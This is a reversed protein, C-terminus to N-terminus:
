EIKLNYSKIQEELKKANMAQESYKGYREEISEIRQKISMETGDSGIIMDVYNLLELEKSSYETQPIGHYFVEKWFVYGQAKLMIGGVHAHDRQDEVFEYGIDHLMGLIFMDDPNCSYHQLNHKVIDRMKAGVAYSHILRDTTLM